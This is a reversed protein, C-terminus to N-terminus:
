SGKLGNLRYDIITRVLELATSYGAVFGPDSSEADRLTSLTRLIEVILKVDADTENTFSGVCGDACGATCMHTWSHKKLIEELRDPMSVLWTDSSLM